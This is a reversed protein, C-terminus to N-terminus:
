SEVEKWMTSAMGLWHCFDVSLYWCDGVDQDMLIRKPGSEFKILLADGDTDTYSFTVNKYGHSVGIKSVSLPAITQAATIFEKFDM